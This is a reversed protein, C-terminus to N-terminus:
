KSAASQEQESVLFEALFTLSLRLVASLRGDLQRVLKRLAAEIEIATAGELRFFEHGATLGREHSTIRFDGKAADLRALFFFEPKGGRFVLRSFGIPQLLTPDVAVSTEEEFERAAARRCIDLLTRAGTTDAWDVSGSGTPALRQPEQASRSGQESLILLGDWTLGLVSVGIHNSARSESLLDLFGDTTCVDRGTVAVHGERTLQRMYMDNSVVSDFYRTQAVRVEPQGATTSVLDTRLAVKADNTLVTGGRSAESLIAYVDRNSVARQKKRPVITVNPDWGGRLAVNVSASVAATMPGRGLRQVRYGADVLKKPLRVDGVERVAAPRIHVSRMARNHERWDFLAQVCGMAVGTLALLMGIVTSGQLTAVGIALGLLGLAYTGRYRMVLTTRQFRSRLRSNM